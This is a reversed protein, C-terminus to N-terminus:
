ASEKVAGDNIKTLTKEVKWVSIKQQKPLSQISLGNHLQGKKDSLFRGLSVSSLPTKIGMESLVKTLDSNKDSKSADVIDKAIFPKNGFVNYLTKLFNSFSEEEPLSSMGSFAVAVDCFRKENNQLSWLQDAIWAITQGVFRDWDGSYSPITRKAWYQGNREELVSLWGMILTLGAEILEFRNTKVYQHPDGKFVRSQLRETKSDLRCKAFRRDLDKSFNLNNGTLLILTKVENTKSSSENLVRDSYYESSTLSSLSKSDVTKKINDLIFCPKNSKLIGLLRKRLEEDGRSDDEAMLQMDSPKALILYAITQALYTKGEGPTPADFAFGPCTGLVPRMIATLIAALLVSEDLVTCFSFEEFPKMLANLADALEKDTPKSKINFAYGGTLSTDFYLGSNSDYGHKSILGGQLNIIPATIVGKLPKLKRLSKLSLIQKIWKLKPNVFKLKPPVSRHDNEFYNIRKNVWYCFSDQDYFFLAGDDVSVVSNMYDFIEQTRMFEITSDVIHSDRGNSVIKHLKSMM